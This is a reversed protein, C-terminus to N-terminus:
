PSQVQVQSIGEDEGVKACFHHEFIGMWSLSANESINGGKPLVSKRM